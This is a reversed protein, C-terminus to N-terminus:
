VEQQLELQQSLQYSALHCGFQLLKLLYHLKYESVGTLTLWLTVICSNCLQNEKSNMAIDNLNVSIPEAEATKM